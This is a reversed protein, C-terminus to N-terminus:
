LSNAIYLCTEETMDCYEIPGLSHDMFSAPLRLVCLDGVTYIYYLLDHGVHLARTLEFYGRNAGPVTSTDANCRHDRLYRATGCVDDAPMTM